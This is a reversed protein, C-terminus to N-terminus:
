MGDRATLFFLLVTHCVTLYTLHILSTFNSDYNCNVVIYRHAGFFSQYHMVLFLFHCDDIVKNAKAIGSPFSKM